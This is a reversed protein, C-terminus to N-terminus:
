RREYVLTHQSRDREDPRPEGDAPDGEPRLGPLEQREAVLAYKSRSGTLRRLPEGVEVRHEQGEIRNAIRLHVGEHQAGDERESERSREEDCRAARERCRRDGDGPDAPRGREDAAPRDRDARDCEGGRERDRQDQTRARHPREREAAHDAHEDHGTRGPRARHRRERATAGDVPLAPVQTSRRGLRAGNLENPVRVVVPDPERALCRDDQADVPGLHRVVPSGRREVEERAIVPELIEEPEVLDVRPLARELQRLEHRGACSAGLVPELLVHPDLREDVIM